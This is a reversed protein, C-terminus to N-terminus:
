QMRKSKLKLLFSLLLLVVVYVFMASFPEMQLGLLFLSGALVWIILCMTRYNMVERWQKGEM